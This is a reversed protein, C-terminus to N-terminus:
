DAPYKKSMQEVTGKTRTTTPGLLAGAAKWDFESELLGGKPLWYLEREGALIRDDANSAADLMARAKASPPELLLVVQLKGNSAAPQRADFPEFAAIAALEAATRIFTPVAYGLSDELGAEIQAALEKRRGEGDFVVNGSARFAAVEEFGLDTFVECLESNTIRHGGVNMGRLFGVWRAM